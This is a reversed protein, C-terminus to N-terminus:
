RVGYELGGPSWSGAGGDGNGSRTAGLGFGLGVDSLFGGSGDIGSEQYGGIDV